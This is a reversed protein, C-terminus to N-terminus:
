SDTEGPRDLDGAAGHDAAVGADPIEGLILDNAEAAVDVGMVLHLAVQAAFLALVDLALDLDDAVLPEPVASAQRHVALPGVGICAGALSGLLSHAHLPLLPLLLRIGFAFFGLRLSFFFMTWPCAWMLDVNLLVITVIVSPAPLASDHADAPLTPKLPDRFDVGNAAWSAASAALRRAWSCPTRLTSTNTFPGPAPRSVAMRDRCADPSSIRPMM